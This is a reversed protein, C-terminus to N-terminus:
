ETRRLDVDGLMQMLHTIVEDKNRFVLTRTADEDDYIELIYRAM